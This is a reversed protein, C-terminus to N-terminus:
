TRYKKKVRSHDSYSYLKYIEVRRHVQETDVIPSRVNGMAAALSQLLNGTMIMTEWESVAKQQWSLVTKIEIEYASM